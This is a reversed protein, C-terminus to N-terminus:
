LEATVLAKSKVKTLYHKIEADNPNAELWREFHPRAVEFNNFFYHYCGIIRDRDLLQRHPYTTPVKLDDALSCFDEFRRLRVLLTNSGDKTQWYQGQVPSPVVDFKEPTDFGPTGPTFGCFAASPNVTGVHDKHKRLFELSKAADEETEGPMGFMFNYACSVGARHGDEVLQDIETGKSLLKGIGMMLGVTSTELGFALCECGSDKLKKFLEYTMEKRIVAQGVWTFKLKREIIEDAFKELRKIQGNVLSDQFEVRNIQPYMKQHHEIEDVIRIAGYGRYTKWFVVESCYICQNPCGRSSMLPLTSSDRYLNFDFDTFDAFPLLSLNRISEVPGNNVEKGEFKYIIGKVDKLSDNFKVKFLLDIFILEGEGQAIADVSSQRLIYAGGMNLSAQPGGFVIKIEPNQAKLQRAYVFSLEMCSAYVSFCVLKTQTKIIASVQANIIEQNDSAFEGVFSSNNWFSQSHDIDWMKSYKASRNTYHQINLDLPLIKFGHHRAFSSLSALALPPTAIGWGACQILVADPRDFNEIATRSAAFPNADASADVGIKLKSKLYDIMSIGEWDISALINILGM